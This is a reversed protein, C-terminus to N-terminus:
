ADPHRPSAKLLGCTPNTFFNILMKCWILTTNHNKSPLPTPNSVELITPPNEGNREYSEVKQSLIVYTFKSVVNTYLIAILGWSFNTSKFTIGM